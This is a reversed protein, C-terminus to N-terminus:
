GTIEVVGDALLEGIRDPDVGLISELVEWSHQGLCPAPTNLQGPTASLIAQMGSYPIRGYVPHDLPM